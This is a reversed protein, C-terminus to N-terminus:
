SKNKNAKVLSYARFVGYVLLVCGVAERYLPFQQIAVDTFLFAIGIVFYLAVIFFGFYYRIKAIAPNSDSSFM